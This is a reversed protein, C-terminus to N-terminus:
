RQQWPLNSAKWGNINGRHNKSDLEGEFGGIINYCNKFGLNSAHNAAQNSRSGSRCIFFLKLEKITSEHFLKKLEENFSFDFDQNESMNPLNQWPLLIMRNEFDECKVTGIFIFEEKTRVDILVSNSDNKLTEFADKPNIQSVTM